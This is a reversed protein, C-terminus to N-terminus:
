LSCVFTRRNRRATQTNRKISWSSQDTTGSGAQGPFAEPAPRFRLPSRPRRRKAGQAGKSRARRRQKGSAHPCEVARQPTTQWCRLPAFACLHLSAFFAFLCLNNALDVFPNLASTNRKRRQTKAGRRSLTEACLRNLAFQAELVELTLKDKSKELM